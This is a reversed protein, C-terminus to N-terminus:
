FRPLNTGDGTVVDLSYIYPVLNAFHVLFGALFTLPRLIQFSIAAM